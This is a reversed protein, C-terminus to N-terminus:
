ELAQDYEVHCRVELDERVDALHGDRINGINPQNNPLSLVPFRVKRRTPITIKKNPQNIALPPLM